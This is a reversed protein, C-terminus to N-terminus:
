RYPAVGAALLTDGAINMAVEDWKDGPDVGTEPISYHGFDLSGKYDHMLEHVLTTLLAM